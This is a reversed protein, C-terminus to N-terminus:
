RFREELGDISSRCHPSCAANALIVVKFLDVVFLRFAREEWRVIRV